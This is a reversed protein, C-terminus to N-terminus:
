RERFVLRGDSSRSVDLRGALGWQMGQYAYRAAVVITGSMEGEGMDVSPACPVTVAENPEVAEMRVPPIAVSTMRNTGVRISEIACMAELDQVASASDNRLLIPPVVEVSDAHLPTMLTLQPEDAAWSADTSLPIGLLVLGCVKAYKQTM